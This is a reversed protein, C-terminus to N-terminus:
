INISKAYQLIEGVEEEDTEKNYKIGFSKGMFNLQKNYYHSKELSYIKKNQILYFCLLLLLSKDTKPFKDYLAIYHKMVKRKSFFELMIIFSIFSSFLASIIFAAFLIYGVDESSIFFYSIFFSIATIPIIVFLSLRIIYTRRAQNYFQEISKM